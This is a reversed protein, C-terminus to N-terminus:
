GGNIFLPLKQIARQDVVTGLDTRETQLISSAATVEVTEAVAGLQLSIDVRSTTNVQVLIDNAEARRFGEKETTVSYRGPVLYVFSYSGNGGSEVTQTFGTAPNSVTVKAAPVGAGTSDVITGTITGRDQAFTLASAVLLCLLSRTIHVSM